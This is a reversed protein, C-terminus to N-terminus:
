ILKMPIYDISRSFSVIVSHEVSSFCIPFTRCFFLMEHSDIDNLINFSLSHCATATMTSRIFSFFLQTAGIFLWVFYHFYEKMIFTYTLYHRVSYRLTIHTVLLISITIITKKRSREEIGDCFDATFAYHALNYVTIISVTQTFHSVSSTGNPNSPSYSQSISGRQVSLSQIADRILEQRDKDKATGLLRQLESTM